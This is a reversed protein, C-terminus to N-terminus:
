TPRYRRFDIVGQSYVDKVVSEVGERQAIKPTQRHAWQAGIVVPTVTLGARRLTEARQKARRVDHRDVKVSIEALAVREGKWWILDAELPDSAPDEEEDLLGAADLWLLIQQRVAADDRPSGGQGLGFIRGARQIVSQEYDDGKRRAVEGRQWKQLEIVAPEMRAVIPEIRNVIPEIRNVVPEIRNVIPEIRNVVPEIRNVVTRLESVAAELAAVREPLQLLPEIKEPLQLLPEIKEPLQLLADTLIFRRLTERLEPDAQFLRQLVRNTLFARAFELQLSEDEQLLGVIQQILESTRSM